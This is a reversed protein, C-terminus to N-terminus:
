ILLLILLILLFRPTSLRQMKEQYINNKGKSGAKTRYQGNRGSDGKTVKGGTGGKVQKM